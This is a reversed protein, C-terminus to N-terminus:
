EHGMGESRDGAKVFVFAAYTDDPLLRDNAGYFPGPQPKAGPSAITRYRAATVTDTFRFNCGWLILLGGPLLCNDLAEVAAAFRAFPLLDTCRAPRHSELDGHRLVSLCFVADYRTPAFADPADACLFRTRKSHIRDAHRRAQAICAPNADIADIRAEPLRHALTFAEEGTSCGFSLLRPASHSALRTAVLDFLAPHRDMRTVTAPQFLRAGRWGARLRGRGLPTTLARVVRVIAVLGAFQKLRNRLSGDHPRTAVSIRDGDAGRMVAAAM